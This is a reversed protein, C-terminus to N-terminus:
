HTCPGIIYCGILGSVSQGLKQGGNSVKRESQASVKYDKWLSQDSRRQVTQQTRSLDVM